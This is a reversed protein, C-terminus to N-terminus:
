NNITIPNGVFEEAAFDIDRVIRISVGEIVENLKEFWGQYTEVDYINYVNDYEDFNPNFGANLLKPGTLSKTWVGAGKSTSWDVSEAFIFSGWDQTEIGTPKVVTLGDIKLNSGSEAICYCNTLTGNNSTDNIFKNYFISDETQVHAYSNSIDGSSSFVFGGILGQTFIKASSIYCNKITGMNINCVLNDTM